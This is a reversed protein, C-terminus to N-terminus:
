FGKFELVRFGISKFYPQYHFLECEDIDTCTIPVLGGPSTVASSITQYGPACQCYYSGVTNICQEGSDENCLNLQSQACEDIDTCNQSMPHHEYGKPCECLFSGITNVCVPTLAGSIIENSTTQNNPSQQQIGTCPNMEAICEDIDKCELSLATKTLGVFRSNQEAVERGYEEIAQVSPITSYIEPKKVLEFGSTCDCRFAGEQNICGQSLITSSEEITSKCVPVGISTNPRDIITVLENAQDASIGESCEDVDLCISPASPNVKYGLSLDDLIKIM